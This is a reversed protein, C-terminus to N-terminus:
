RHKCGVKGDVKWAVKWVGPDFGPTLDRSTSVRYGGWVAGDGSPDWGPARHRCEGFLLPKLSLTRVAHARGPVLEVRQTHGVQPYLPTLPPTGVTDGRHGWLTGM